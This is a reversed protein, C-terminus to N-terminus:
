IKYRLLAGLGGLQQLANNREVVEVGASTNTAQRVLEARTEHDIPGYHDIIITEVQGRELAARTAEIGVAALGDRRAEAVFREVVQEGLQAEVDRLIPDVERFVDNRDAHMDIHTVDEVKDLVDGPLAEELWTLAPADGAIVVHGARNRRVAEAIAEATEEAFDKRHKDIHRQYRSESWGGLSAKHFSSSDEDRGEREALAGGRYVFLRATNTDVVAVISTEFEDRLRALQYLDTHPGASVQNEFPTGVEATEWIGLADCAFMALGETADNRETDAFSEMREADRNFSDLAPGRPLLPKRLERLRDRLVIRGSRIQPNQGTAEPRMDLYASLVPAEHSEIEALRRM